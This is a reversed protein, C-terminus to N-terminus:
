SGSGSRARVSLALRLALRLPVLYWAAYKRALFRYASRHHALRMAHSSSTTSHAGVHVVRAAPEYVNRWGSRGLRHGLDVDEFYMFYGEDFGGLARFASGRVLVCAGSLWGADRRSGHEDDAHYARTWPNREWVNAFLAHGLGTRLSPVRRASPYTTGDTEVVAPGVSGIREDSRATEVLVDLAGRGLVVDPNCVLIWEVDDPLTRVAANVAAGYGHNGGTDVFAAGHGVTVARADDADQSANDAVVVTVPRQSSDATSDLFEALYRGSNYTVTVIAVEPSGGSM